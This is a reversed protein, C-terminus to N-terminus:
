LMDYLQGPGVLQLRVRGFTVFAGAALTVPKGPDVIRGDVRTGNASKADVFTVVDPSVDCFHGHLKSISGDRISVDCNPARGLSIREPFPNGAAKRVPFVLLELPQSDLSAFAGFSPREPIVAQPQVVTHFSVPGLAGPGSPSGMVPIRVLFPYAHADAFASRSTESRIRRWTEAQAGQM